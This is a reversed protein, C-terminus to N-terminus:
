EAGRLDLLTKLATVVRSRDNSDAPEEALDELVSQFYEGVSLKGPTWWAWTKPTESLGVAAVEPYMTIAVEYIAQAMNEATPNGVFQDLENIDQHDFNLDLWHKFKDLERYDRVFGVENLGDAELVLKVEYNHGHMRSCPHDEPLGVLFHASSFSFTKEIRYV